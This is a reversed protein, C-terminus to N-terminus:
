PSLSSYLDMWRPNDSEILNIKWDRKWGKIQKERRAAAEASDHTEFWVLPDVGYLATFGPV